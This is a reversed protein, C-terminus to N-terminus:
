NLGFFYQFIIRYFGYMTVFIIITIIWYLFRNKVREQVMGSLFGIMVYCLIIGIIGFIEKM